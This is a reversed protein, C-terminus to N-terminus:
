AVVGWSGARGARIVRTVVERDVGTIEIHLREGHRHLLTPVSSTFYERRHIDVVVRVGDPCQDLIALAAGDFDQVLTNDDPMRVYISGTIM